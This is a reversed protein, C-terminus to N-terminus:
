GRGLYSLKLVLALPIGRYEDLGPFREILGDDITPERFDEIRLGLEKFLRWYDAFLHPYCQIRYEQGTEDFFETYGHGFVVWYPHFDSVVMVGGKRLVRTAERFVRGLHEVHNLTLACVVLDFSEDPVCLHDLTGRVVRFPVQSTKQVARELMRPSADVGVVEGGRQALLVCYRGTGCGLELVRRGRVDGIMELVIGEEIAILPNPDRDYQAAWRDYGDVVGVEVYGERDDPGVRGM